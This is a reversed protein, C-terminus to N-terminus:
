DTEKREYESILGPYEKYLRLLDQQDDVDWLEPLVVCGGSLRELTETFVTSTGWSINEFINRQMKTLGILVYGGDQAPGIVAEGKCVLSKLAARLYAADIVPCDTGIVIVSSSKSLSKEFACAMREGLDGVGQERLTVKFRRHCSEFFPHHISPACWLEVPAIQSTTAVQLVHEAMRVHVAAAMEDGVSRALRTKVKGPEPAKCFVLIRSDPFQM